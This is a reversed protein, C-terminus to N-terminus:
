HSHLSPLTSYTLQGALEYMAARIKSETEDDLQVSIPEDINDGCLEWLQQELANQQYILQSSPVAGPAQLFYGVDVPLAIQGATGILHTYLVPDNKITSLQDDWDQPLNYIRSLVDDLLQQDHIWAADPLIARIIEWAQGSNSGAYHLNQSADILKSTITSSHDRYWEESHVKHRAEDAAEDYAFESVPYTQLFLARTQTTTSSVKSCLRAIDQLGSKMNALHQSIVESSMAHEPNLTFDGRLSNAGILADQARQLAKVELNEMYRRHQEEQIALNSARVSDFFAVLEGSHSAKPQWAVESGVLYGALEFVVPHSSTPNRSVVQELENCLMYCATEPQPQQLHAHSLLLGLMNVKTAELRGDNSPTTLGERLLDECAQVPLGGPTMARGDPTQFPTAVYNAAVKLLTESHASPHKILCDNLDLPSVEPLQDTLSYHLAVITPDPAPETPQKDPSTGSNLYETM